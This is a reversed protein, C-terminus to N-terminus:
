CVPKKHQVPQFYVIGSVSYFIEAEFLNPDLPLHPCVLQAAPIDMTSILFPPGLVQGQDAAM